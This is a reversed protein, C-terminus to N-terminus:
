FSSRFIEDRSKKREVQDVLKQVLVLHQDIERPKTGLVVAPLRGYQEVDPLDINYFKKRV